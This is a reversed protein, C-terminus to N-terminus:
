TQNRSRWAPQNGAIDRVLKLNALLERLTGRLWSRPNERASRDAVGWAEIGLLRCITLARPLHFAQSVVLLKRQGFVDRARRCSAYTDVGYPDILVAAEPVGRQLLYARMAGTEDNSEVSADGSLLVRTVRRDHLLDAGLDLRARLLRSPQGDPYVEAGLVLATETIPASAAPVVRGLSLLRVWAALALVGGCPLALVLTLLRTIWRM